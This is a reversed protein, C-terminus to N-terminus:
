YQVQKNVRYKQWSDYIDKILATIEDEEWAYNRQYIPIVYKKAEQSEIYIQRISREKLPLTKDM